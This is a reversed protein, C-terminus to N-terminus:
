VTNKALMERLEGKRFMEHVSYSFGFGPGEARVVYFPKQNLLVSIRSLNSWHSVVSCEGSNILFMDTLLKTYSDDRGMSVLHQVEGPLCVVDIGSRMMASKVYDVDDSFLVVQQGPKRVHKICAIFNDITRDHDFQGQDENSEGAWKAILRIHVTISNRFDYRSVADITEPKLKLHRCFLARIMDIEDYRLKTHRFLYQAFNLNSHVHMVPGIYELSSRSLMGVNSHELFEFVDGYSPATECKVDFISDFRGDDSVHFAAGITDALVMASAMGFLIDGLGGITPHFWVHGKARNYPLADCIDLVKMVPVSVTEDAYMLGTDAHVRHYRISAADIWWGFNACYFADPTTIEIFMANVPCFMVHYNAGGHVGVVCAASGFIDIRRRLESECGADGDDPNFEIFTYRRKNCFTHLRTKLEAYTSPDWSRPAGVRRNVLIVSSGQARPQLAKFLDRRYPRVMRNVRSWLAGGENGDSPIWNVTTVVGSLIVPTDYSVQMVNEIGVMKLLYTAHLFQPVVCVARKLASRHAYIAYFLDQMFHQWSDGNTVNFVYYRRTSGSRNVVQVRPWSEFHYKPWESDIMTLSVDGRITHYVFPSRRCVSMSILIVLVAVLANLSVM